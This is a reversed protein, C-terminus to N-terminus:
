RLRDASRVLEDDKKIGRYALFYLVVNVLLVGLVPSYSISTEETFTIMKQAYIFVVVAIIPQFILALQVLRMQFKRNKYQMIGYVTLFLSLAFAATISFSGFLTETTAGDVMFHATVPTLEYAGGEVTITALTLELVIPIILLIAATALYVTQIRQIM